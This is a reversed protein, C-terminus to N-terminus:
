EMQFRNKSVEICEKLVKDDAKVVAVLRGIKNLTEMDSCWIALGEGEEDFRIKALIGPDSMQLAGYIIGKWTPGGGQYGWATLKKFHSDKEHIDYYDYRFDYNPVKVISGRITITKDTLARVLIPSTKEQACSVSTVLLILFLIKM